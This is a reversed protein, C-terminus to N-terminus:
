PAEGSPPRGAWAQAILSRIAAREIPRPNWYPSHVALDAATDIDSEGMGLERLSRKASLEGSLEFLAGAPDDAHLSSRLMDMAAPAAPANYAIVYPLIVTHTEAHP